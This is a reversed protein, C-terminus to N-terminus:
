SYSILFAYSPLPYTDLRVKIIKLVTKNLPHRAMMRHRLVMESM